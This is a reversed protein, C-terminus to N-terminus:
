KAPVFKILLYTHVCHTLLGQHCSTLLSSVLQQHELQRVTVSYVTCYSVTLLQATCWSNQGPVMHERCGGGGACGACPMWLGLPCCVDSPCVQGAGPRWRADPLVQFNRGPRVSPCVNYVCQVHIKIHNHIFHTFGTKHIITTHM